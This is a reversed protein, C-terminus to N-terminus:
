SIDKEMGKYKVKLMKIIVHRPTTEKSKDQKSERFNRPNDIEKVYKPFNGMM